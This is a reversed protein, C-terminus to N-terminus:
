TWRAFRPKAWSRWAAWASVGNSGDSSATAIAATWRAPRAYSGLQRLKQSRAGAHRECSLDITVSGDESNVHPTKDARRRERADEFQEGAGAAKFACSCSSMSRSEEAFCTDAHVAPLDDPPELGIRGTLGQAHAARQM